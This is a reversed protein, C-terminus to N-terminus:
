KNYCDEYDHMSATITVKRPVKVLLYDYPPFSYDGDGPDHKVTVHLGQKVLKEKCYDIDCKSYSKCVRFETDYTAGKMQTRLDVVTQSYLPELNADLTVRFEDLLLPQTM